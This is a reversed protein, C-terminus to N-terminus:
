KKKLHIIISDNYPATKDIRVFSIVETSIHGVNDVSRAVIKTEGENSINFSGTYKTWPKSTAGELRYETYKIGSGTDKGPTISVSVTSGTWETNNVIVPPTPPLKDINTITISEATENGLYDKAIFTYTGNESVTFKATSENVWTGDPLLIGKVGTENDTATATIEVMKDTWNTENPTLKLEPAIKDNYEFHTVESINGANDIAVIHLYFAKDKPVNIGEDTTDVINDPITLPNSDIVYSYGKLGTKVEVKEINSELKHEVNRAEIKYESTVGVDKSKWNLSMEENSIPKLDVIPNTPPATDMGMRDEWNRETTIQALYYLTNAIIRTEAQTVYPFSHGSNIIATNNYTHVFFNNTGAQGTAPSHSIESFKGSPYGTPNLTQIWVDGKGFINLGHQFPTVYVDGINGVKFPFETLLGKKVIQIEGGSPWYSSYDCEVNELVEFSATPLMVGSGDRASYDPCKNYPQNSFIEVGMEKALKNVGKDLSIYGMTHHSTMFGGGYQIFKRLQEIANDNPYILGPHLNWMGYFVADYTWMGNEEKLYKSPNENFSNLSLTDIEVDDIGEELLWTKLIGSDPVSQGELDIQGGSLGTNSIGDSLSNNDPYINLVKVKMKSPISEWDGNSKRYIKYTTSDKFFPNNWELDVKNETNNATAKLVIDTHINHVDVSQTRKNGLMDEAVFKYPGSESVRYTVENGNVWNGNPLQIRRVATEKDTAKVTLVVDGKTLENIDKTATITPPNNDIYPLHSVESANGAKDISKIHIYHQANSTIPIEIRENKTDIVNDPITSENTDVVYSYGDLGSEITIGKPTSLFDGNKGLAKVQYNYTTGNDSPKQIDGFFKGNEYKVNLSSVKNPNSKDTATTDEYDSLYGEYLMVNDRFLQTKTAYGFKVDDLYITGGTHSGFYFTGGRKMVDYDDSDNVMSNISYTAWQNGSPITRQNFVWAVRWPRVKLSEGASISRNVETHLTITNNVNDINSIMYVAVIDKPSTDTTIYQGLYLGSVNNLKIVNSGNPVNETVINPLSDITEGWGGDGNPMLAGGGISKAKFTLSLNTGNPFYKRNFIAISNIGSTSPFQFWNGNNITDVIKLSHSGSFSSESSISQGGEGNAYTLTPLEQGNEFSTMSLINEDLIDVAWEAKVFNGKQYVTIEPTNAEANISNSAVAVPIAIVSAMMSM